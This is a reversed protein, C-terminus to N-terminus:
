LWARLNRAPLASANSGGEGRLVPSVLKWTDPELLDSHSDQELISKNIACSTFWSSTPTHTKVVM